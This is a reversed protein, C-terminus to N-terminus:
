QRAGLLPLTGAIHDQGAVTNPVEPMTAWHPLSQVKPWETNTATAASLSFQKHLPPLSKLSFAPNQRTKRETGWTPGLPRAKKQLSVFGPKM